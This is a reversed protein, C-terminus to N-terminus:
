NVCYDLQCAIFDFSFNGLLISFNNDFGLINRLEMLQDVFFKGSVGMMIRVLKGRMLTSSLHIKDKSNHTELLLNSNHTTLPLNPTGRSSLGGQVMGSEYQSKESM